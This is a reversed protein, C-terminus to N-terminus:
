RPVVFTSRETHRWPAADEPTPLREIVFEIPHAGSGVQQAQQPPLQVAVPVWRSEAPGVTVADAGLAQVGALIPLACTQVGTM